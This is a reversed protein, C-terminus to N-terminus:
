TVDRARFVVLAVGFFIAAYGIITILARLESPEFGPMSVEEPGIVFLALNDGPLWRAWNPRFARMVNELVAFYVFSVIVAAATVRAMMTISMGITAMLACALASRLAAIAIDGLWAADAGETTGRIAAVPALVGILLTQILFTALFVFIAGALVKMAWVRSRRPEWTLITTMTGAGWDAGIFTAGLGIALIVLLFGMGQLVESMETLHFRPDAAVGTTEECFEAVSDFGEPVPGQHFEVCDEVFQAQQQQAERVAAPDRSSNIFVIFAAFLIALLALVGTARVARRSFYRRLDTTLLRIM